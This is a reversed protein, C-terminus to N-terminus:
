IGGAPAPKLPLRPPALRGGLAQRWFGLSWAFHMIMAAVGSLGACRDHAKAGLLLGGAVCLLAWAAAPLALLLAAPALPAALLGLAAAIVAPAVALPACQRLKLKVRHRAATMARGRGYGLYQRFLPGPSSRPFYDLALDAALWIRGGGQALRLDLEADENHSFSEDYGGAERFADLRMLAHHGHDVYGSAAGNRHPSGGAGLVSNQATAAARQFCGVGVTRMPTVVSAAGTAEAARLLGPIFDRPYASHADVRILWRRRAGYRAAARNVGASQIRDPNPLLRINPAAKAHAEVIAQSGDTSGGDAVVILAGAPATEVLWPLLAPLHAAENLCPVVILTQSTM